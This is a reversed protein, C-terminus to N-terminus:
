ATPAFGGGTAVVVARGCFEERTMAAALDRDESAAVARRGDPLDCVAIAKVAADGLYLVTYGAISAPGAADTVLERTATGAAVEASVDASGFGGVPPENSWLAIGQKTLFGSVTTVLGLSGPDARLVEAMRATAQLVYNNLPGGAFRMGGTVTLPRDLALGLERAFIQVSGPFCSYLDVHAVQEVSKGALRFAREGAIAIGPCRQLEARTSLPLMHNSETGALPFIWREEPVGCARAKALSCLILGAAQDVNWDSNHLKTYPFAIMPNQQSPNRIAAATVPTRHVAHPNAAAVASMAAWLEAIRDRHADLSLGEAFRLASEMVTFYHAPMMLGRAFEVDAWLSAAPELKEDPQVEAQLTDSVELGAKQARLSRYKTDGGTVLAVEEKGTAIALCADNLLTQQLVGVEALVSRAGSAGIREAVLRGPDPYSWFGRPVRLSDAGTLLRRSGADEAAAELAAVMLASSELAEGPDECRQDAVGVGVLVPTRPDLAV